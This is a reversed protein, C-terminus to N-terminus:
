IIVFVNVQLQVTLGTQYQMKAMYVSVDKPSFCHGASMCMKMLVRRGEDACGSVRVCVFVCVCVYVCVCM